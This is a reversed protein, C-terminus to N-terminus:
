LFSSFLSCFGFSDFLYSVIPDAREGVFNKVTEVLVSEIERKMEQESIKIMRERERETREEKEREAVREGRQREKEVDRERLCVYVCDLM